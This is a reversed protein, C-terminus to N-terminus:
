LAELFDADAILAPPPQLPVFRCVFVLGDDGGGGHVIHQWEDRADETTLEFFHNRRPEGKPAIADLTGLERVVRATLGTEEHVERM